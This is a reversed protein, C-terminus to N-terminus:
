SRRAAERLRRRREREAELLSGFYLPEGRLLASAVGKMYGALTSMTAEATAKICLAGVDGFFGVHVGPREDLEPDAGMDTYRDGFLAVLDMGSDRLTQRAAAKRRASSYLVRDARVGCAELQRETWLRSVPGRPRATIVYIGLGQRKCLSYCGGFLGSCEVGRAAPILTGDIDFVAVQRGRAPLTELYKGLAALAEGETMRVAARAM